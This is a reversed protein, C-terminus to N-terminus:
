GAGGWLMISSPDQPDVRVKVGAGDYAWSSMSGVHMFQTFHAPYPTGGAPQVEVDFAHEQGGGIDSRGTPQMRVIVAPHEVGVQNLRTVKNLNDMDQSSPMGVAGGAGKLKDMFGM